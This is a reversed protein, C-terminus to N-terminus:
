DGGNLEYCIEKIVFKLGQRSQESPIPTVFYEQLEGLVFMERKQMTELIYKQESATFSSVIEIDSVVCVIERRCNYLEWCYCPPIFSRLGNNYVNVPLNNINEM